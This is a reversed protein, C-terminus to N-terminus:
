TTWGDLTSEEQYEIRVMYQERIGFMQGPGVSVGSCTRWFNAQLRLVNRIDEIPLSCPIPHQGFNRERFTINWFVARSHHLRFIAPLPPYTERLKNTMKRNFTMQLRELDKQFFPSFVLCVFNQYEGLGDLQKIHKVEMEVGLTLQWDIKKTILNVICANEANGKRLSSPLTLCFSRSDHTM